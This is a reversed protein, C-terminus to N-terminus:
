PSNDHQNNRRASSEDKMNKMLEERYEETLKKIMESRKLFNNQVAYHYSLRKKTQYKPAAEYMEEFQTKDLNERQIPKISKSAINTHFTSLMIPKFSSKRRVKIESSNGRNM